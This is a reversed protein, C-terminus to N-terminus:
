ATDRTGKTQGDFENTPMGTVNPQGVFGDPPQKQNVVATKRAVLLWIHKDGSLPGSRQINDKTASLRQLM